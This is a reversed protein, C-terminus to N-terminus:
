YSEEWPTGKMGRPTDLIEKLVFAQRYGAAHHLMATLPHPQRSTLDKPGYAASARRASEDHTHLADPKVHVSHSATRVPAASPVHQQQPPVHRVQPPPAPLRQPAQPQPRTPGQPVPPPTSPGSGQAEQAARKLEEFLDRLAGRGPSPGAEQPAERTQEQWARDRAEQEQQSPVRRARESSEKKQKILNIVWNVFAVFLAVIIFVVEGLDAALMPHPMHM